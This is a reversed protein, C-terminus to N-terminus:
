RRQAIQRDRRGRIRSTLPPEASASRMSHGRSRLSRRCSSIRPCPASCPRHAPWSRATEPDLDRESEAGGPRVGPYADREEQLREIAGSSSEDFAHLSFTGLGNGATQDDSM